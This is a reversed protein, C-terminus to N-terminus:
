IIFSVVVLPVVAFVSPRWGASGAPAAAGGGAAPSETAPSTSEGDPTPSAGPLPAATANPDWEAITTYPLGKSCQSYAVTTNSGVLTPDANGKAIAVAYCSQGIGRLTARCSSWCVEGLKVARRCGTPNTYSDSLLTANVRSCLTPYTSKLDAAYAAADFAATFLIYM